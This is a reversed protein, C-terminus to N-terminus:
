KTVQLDFPLLIFALYHCLDSLFFYIDTDFRLLSREKGTSKWCCMTSSLLPGLSSKLAVLGSWGM